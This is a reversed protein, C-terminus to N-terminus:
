YIDWEDSEKGEAPCVNVDQRGMWRGLGLLLISTEFNRWSCVAAACGRGSAWGRWVLADEVLEPPLLEESVGVIVEDVM